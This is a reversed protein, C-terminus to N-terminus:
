RAPLASVIVEGPPSQAADISVAIVGLVGANVILSLAMAVFRKM